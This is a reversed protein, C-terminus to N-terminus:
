IVLRCRILMALLALRRAAPELKLMAMTAMQIRMPKIAWSMVTRMLEDLAQRIKPGFPAGPAPAENYSPKAVLRKLAALAQQRENEQVLEAAM